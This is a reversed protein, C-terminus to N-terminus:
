QVTAARGGIIARGKFGPPIDAETAFTPTQGAAPPTDTKPPSQNTTSIDENSLFPAALGAREQIKNLTKYSNPRAFYEVAQDGAQMVVQTERVAMQQIAAKIGGPGQAKNLTDWAEKRAGETSTGTGGAILRAYENVFTQVAAAYRAEGPDSFNTKGLMIMRNVPVFDTRTLGQLSQTVQDGMGGLSDQLIKINGERRGVQGAASSMAKYEMRAGVIDSPTIGHGAYFSELQAKAAVSRGSILSPNIISDVAAQPLAEPPLLGQAQRQAAAALQGAVKMDATNSSSFLAAAKDSSMIQSGPKRAAAQLDQTQQPDTTDYAQATYGLEASKDPTIVYAFKGAATKEAREGAGADFTQQERQDQAVLHRQEIQMQGLRLLKENLASASHPDIPAMADRQAATQRISFDLDNEGPNQTLQSARLAQDAAQSRIMDPSPFMTNVGQAVTMDNMRERANGGTASIDRLLSQQQLAQMTAPDLPLGSNPDLPLAM